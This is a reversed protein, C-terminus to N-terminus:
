SVACRLESLLNEDSISSRYKSKVFGLESISKYVWITRYMGLLKRAGSDLVSFKKGKINVDM